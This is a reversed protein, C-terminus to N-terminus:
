NLQQKDERRVKKLARPGSEVRMQLHMRMGSVCVCVCRPVSVTKQNQLVVFAEQRLAIACATAGKQRASELILTEQPLSERESEGGGLENRGNM